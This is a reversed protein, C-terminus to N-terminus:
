RGSLPGGLINKMLGDLINSGDERRLDAYWRTTAGPDAAHTIECRRRAKLVLERTRPARAAEYAQLGADLSGDHRSLAEALVVADEMAMCGGQGIDPTTNHAADGLLAVRGTVWPVFPDIDFIEVRNTTEPEIADILAQVEPVWGGFYARLLAKYDARNNELGSPLPVDFFFYFRRGSVPMLSVRKGEGVFTTWRDVPAFAGDMSVLGNWNVYGAYRRVVVKGLVHRRVVSHAGDAGILLDAQERTGDAFVATVGDAGEHLDTLETGFRIDGRGFASILMAQLDARSVPYARHGVAQMLPDLSFATMTEGSLGDVYAMARLDGGIAAIEDGLELRELCAVGNSWLSIAAGVPRIERVREYVRVEHGLRRLALGACLGGMGAGVVSIKM